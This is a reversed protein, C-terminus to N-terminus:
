PCGPRISDPRRLWRSQEFDAVDRGGDFDFGAGFEDLGFRGFEAGREGAFDDVIERDVREAAVYLFECDESGASCRLLAAHLAGTTGDAAKARAEVSERDVADVVIAEVYVARRLGDNLLRDGLEGQEGILEAGLVAVGGAALEVDDGLGAGVVPVAARPPVVAIAIEVGCGILFLGREGSGAIHFIAEVVVTFAAADASGDLAIAEEDVACIFELAFAEGRLACRNRHGGGGAHLLKLSEVGVGGHESDELFEWRSRRFAACSEDVTSGDVDALVRTDSWVEGVLMVEGDVGVEIEARMLNAAANKVIPIALREHVRNLGLCLESPRLLGVRTFDDKGIRPGDVAM